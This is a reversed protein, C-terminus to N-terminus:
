RFNCRTALFEAAAASRGADLAARPCGLLRVMTAVTPDTAARVGPPRGGEPTAPAGDAAVRVSGPLGSLMARAAATDVEAPAWPERGNARRDLEYRVGRLIWPGGLAARLDAEVGVSVAVPRRRASAAAGIAAATRPTGTWPRVLSAPVLGTRRSLEARYWPAGLLPLTVVTVDRRVHEVTQLYWLPYTDNDGAVFLVADRPAGALLAAAFGRAANAEVPARRNMAGWNLALPVCAAAVAAAATWRAQRAGGPLRTVLAHVGLGAWAGWAWFALAFFYDRERAEHPADDPLVGWGYSPGAKLNLWVVIGLSASVLLVLWARWSERHLRRHAASGALAVAVMAVTVTTRRWSPGIYASLGLGWQWDAWQFLNGLQLWAPAQRPWLGAVDYQRRGLVYLFSALSSPNGQNITPDHRARLLLVLAASLGLALGVVLM